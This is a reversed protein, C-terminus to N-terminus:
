EFLDNIEKPCFREKLATYLEENKARTDAWTGWGVGMTGLLVLFYGWFGYRELCAGEVGSDGGVLEDKINYM